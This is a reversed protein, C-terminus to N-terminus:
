EEICEVIMEEYKDQLKLDNSIAQYTIKGNHTNLGKMLGPDSKLAKLVGLNAMKLLYPLTASTLAQTAQLSVQGPMNPICCYIKGEIEYIPKTHSTPRSGWICGGQDIAVDIIVSGAKMSKVMSETVVKPAESGKVLIAGILLDAKEVHEILIDSDSKIFYMHSSLRNGLIELAREKISDLKKQDIDLLYVRSGMGAATLAAKTGVIGAGIVVVKARKAGNIHCLTMGRGNYKRQLFQSGYNVALVGAVESMPKLLPLRGKEDEVTEYAIATIKNELLKLTLNKDVGALHLYTFLTKGKFQELLEYELPVPEKVKVLINANRVIEVPSDMLKAGAEVYDEDSYSSGIGADKEVLVSNGAQILEKVGSPTLGVRNENDKVEKITAIIAM